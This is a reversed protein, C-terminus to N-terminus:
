RTRDRGLSARRRRFDWPDPPAREYLGGWKGRVLGISRRHFTKYVRAFKLLQGLLSLM